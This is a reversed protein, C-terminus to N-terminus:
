ESSEASFSKRRNSRCCARRATTTTTTTSEKGAFEVTSLHFRWVCHAIVETFSPNALRRCRSASCTAPLPSICATIGIRPITSITYQDYLLVSVTYRLLLHYYRLLATYCYNSRSNATAALPDRQIAVRLFNSASEHEPYRVVGPFKIKLQRIRSDRWHNM